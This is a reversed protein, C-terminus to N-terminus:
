RPGREGGLAGLIRRQIPRALFRPTVTLIASAGLMLDFASGGLSLYRAISRVTEGRDEASAHFALVRLRHRMLERRRAEHRTDTFRHKEFVRLQGRLQAVLTKGTIAGATATGRHVRYDGLCENVFYLKGLAAARIAYDVDAAGECALDFREHKFIATRYLSFGLCMAQKLIATYPDELVGTTLTARGYDESNVRSAEELVRGGADVLRHDCFSAVVEPDRTLPAALREVFRADLRDDDALVCFADGESSAVLYNLNAFIGPTPNSPLLRVRPDRQSVEKVYDPSGDNSGDDSVLIELDAHTQSRASALSEELYARRNLTPIVISVRM